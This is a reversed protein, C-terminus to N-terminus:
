AEAGALWHVKLASACYLLLFLLYGVHGALGLLSLRAPSPKPDAIEAMQVVSSKV